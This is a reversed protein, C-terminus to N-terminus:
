GEEEWHGSAGPHSAVMVAGNGFFEKMSPATGRAVSSPAVPVPAYDDGALLERYMPSKEQDRQQRLYSVSQAKGTLELIHLSLFIIGLAMFRDDHQGSEARASQMGEDRHLAQMERVFEPSNIEIEGDRLAKVMYDIVMPRSWRNTVFGIRSSSNDMKKRDYRVWNHFNAWGMKRMELQTVEGNLGTEIAMKPQRTSNGQYFLGIAHCIAAFDNANVYESAYECIQIDAHELNGKCLGELVTRDQGIGDSTDVGFGYEERHKPWEFVLLKGTPDSTQWGQWRLPVLQYPGVDLIKRTIDRDHEDAQLRPPIMHVPARFGFVGVPEKCSNNYDSIVDVDFVSEGSAAFSELDDSAFERLFRALIKKAKYEERMVEWFYMQELPMSWNEPFYKRLLDDARVFKRAREAHAVTVGMPQWGQEKLKARSAARIAKADAASGDLRFARKLWTPTPYLDNAVFWPIFGPRFKAQGKWYFKKCHNWTKFWWGYPGEGTSELIVLKRSSEHVAPVLGADILDEANLYSAVESLHVVSPTNGRGIDYKQAGHQVILKSNLAGFEMRTGMRDRTMEPKLWYPIWDYLQKYKDVMDKSREKDSSGTLAIINDFFLTRHGVVIQSDTTIGCQRGKLWMMMIAWGRDELDARADNVILQAVNPNYRIVEDDPNLIKAHRTAFYLYDIQSLYKENQIWKLEDPSYLMAPTAPTYPPEGYQEKYRELKDDFHAAAEDCAQVSHYTLEYGLAEHAVKLGLEVSKQSYM